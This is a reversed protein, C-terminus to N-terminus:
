GATMAALLRLRGSVSLWGDPEDQRYYRRYASISGAATLAIAKEDIIANLRVMDDASGMLKKM